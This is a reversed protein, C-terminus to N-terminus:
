RETAVRGREHTVVTAAIRDHLAQRNPDWFMELFGLLGTFVSAAYGGFRNFAVWLGIPKGDLRVVRLGMLRKGPTRGRWFAPFLTFYLAAWGVELGVEDAVKFLLNVLGRDREGELEEELEDNTSQLRAIRREQRDLRDAALAEGLPAGLSAAAASDGAQLAGAYAVALSDVNSTPVAVDMTDVISGIVAEAWPAESEAALGDLVDRIEAPEMGQRRLREVLASAAERMESEDEARSLALVDVLTGGAEGLSLGSVVDAADIRIPSEDDSSFRSSWFGGLTAVLIVTGLSGYFAVRGGRGLLGLTSKRFAARFSLIALALGLFFWGATGLIGVLVLDVVMALGRRWPKALPIGLLDPAVEFADPTVIERPDKARPPM